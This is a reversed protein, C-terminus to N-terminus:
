LFTAPLVTIVRFHCDFGLESGSVKEVPRTGPALNLKHHAVLPAPQSAVTMPTASSSPPPHAGIGSMQAAKPPQAASVGQGGCSPGGGENKKGVADSYTSKKKPKTFHSPPEHFIMPTKMIQQLPQEIVEASSGVVGGSPPTATESPASSSSPPPASGGTVSSYMSQQTSHKTTLHQKEKAANSAGGPASQGQSMTMSDANGSSGKVGARGQSQQKSTSGGSGGGFKAQQGPKMALKPMGQAAVTAALTPYSPQPGLLSVTHGAVGQQHSSGFLRRVAGSPASPGGGSGPSASATKSTMVVGSTGTISAAVRALAPPLQPMIPPGPLLASTLKAESVGQKSSGGATSKTLSAVTAKDGGQKHTSTQGGHSTASGSLGGAKKPAAKGTHYGSSVTSSTAVNVSAVATTSGRAPPADSPEEFVGVSSTSSPEHSLTAHRKHATNAAPSSSSSLPSSLNGALRHILQTINQTPDRTLSNILM